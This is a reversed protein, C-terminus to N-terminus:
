RQSVLEPVLHYMTSIPLAKPLPNSIGLCARALSWLSPFYVRNNHFRASFLWLHVRISVSVTSDAPCFQTCFAETKRSGRFLRFVRFKPSVHERETYKAHEATRKTRDQSLWNLIEVKPRRIETKAACRDTLQIMPLLGGYIHRLELVNNRLSNLVGPKGAASEHFGASGGCGSEGEYRAM